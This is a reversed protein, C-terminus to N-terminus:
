VTACHSFYLLQSAFAKKSTLPGGDKKLRKSGKERERKGRETNTAHCGELGLGLDLALFAWNLNEESRTLWSTRECNLLLGDWHRALM